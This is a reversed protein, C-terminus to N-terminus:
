LSAESRSIEPRPLLMGVLRNLSFHWHRLSWRVEPLEHKQMLCEAVIRALRANRPRPSRVLYRLCRALRQSGRRGKRELVQAARQCLIEIPRVDPLSCEAYEGLLDLAGKSELEALRQVAITVLRKSKDCLARRLHLEPTGPRDDIECLLLLVDRRVKFDEHAALRELLPVAEPTPLERMISILPKLAARGRTARQDLVRALLEGGRERAFRHLAAAVEPSPNEGLLDLVGNLATAGGLALLSLADEVVREGRCAHALIRDIRAKGIFEDLYCRAARRTEESDTKLVSHARAALTAEHVTGFRERELLFDTAGQVYALLGQRYKDGDPLALLSVALESVHLRVDVPDTPDRYRLASAQAAGALEERSLQALLGRYSEPNFEADGRRHLMEGFAQRPAQPQVLAQPSLGWSELTNYLLSADQDRRESIRVLKNILSLMEDPVRGGARDVEQLAQLLDSVPLDDVLEDLFHLSPGPKASNVRLLDRRLGDHLGAIFGGLRQRVITRQDPRLSSMRRAARHMQKRLGGVGAGEQHEIQAGVEDALAHISSEAAYATPDTLLHTLQEWPNVARDAGMGDKLTGEAFRLARYDIPCLRIHELGRRALEEVLPLGRIRERRARGLFLVLTEIESATVGSRFEIAALDLQHLLIALSRLSGTSESLKQEDQLLHDGAVGVLLAPREGLAQMLGLSAKQVAEPISPHGSPYITTKQFARYLSQLAGVLPESSSAPVERGAETAQDSVQM